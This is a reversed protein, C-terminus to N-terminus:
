IKDPYKSSINHLKYAIFIHVAKVKPRAQYHAFLYYRLYLDSRKLIKKKLKKHSTQM